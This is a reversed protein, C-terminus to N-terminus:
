PGLILSLVGSLALMTVCILSPSSGRSSILWGFLPVAVIAILGGATGYADHSWGLVAGAFLGALVAGAFRWVLLTRRAIGILEPIAARGHTFGRVIGLLRFILQPLGQAAVLLIVAVVPGLSWAALGALVATPRIAGWFLPDGIAALSAAGSNRVRAVDASPAEDAEMRAVAGIVCPAMAPTTNFGEAHRSMLDAGGSPRVSKLTWAFGPGQLTRDNWLNLLFLARLSMGFLVKSKRADAEPGAM